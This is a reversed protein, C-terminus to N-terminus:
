QIGYKEMRQRFAIEGGELIKSVKEKIVPLDISGQDTEKIYGRKSTSSMVGIWEADGFVPINANHTAFLFQRETKSKRLETVIRDAIFSNDLNDEPQDLILPDKNELLLLHLLATCQQGTSLDDLIKYEENSPDNSVNLEINILDPIDLTELDMNQSETLSSLREKVFSTLSVKLSDLKKELISKKFEFLQFQDDDIFNLRTEGIKDIKLSTLFDKLTKLNGEKILSLKLYGKLKKNIKKLSKEKADWIDKKLIDLKGLYEDREKRFKKKSKHLQELKRREPKLEEIEKILRKYYAGIESGSKGSANPIKKISKELDREDKEILKKIEKVESTHKDFQKKYSLNLEDILKHSKLLLDNFTTQLVKFEKKSSNLENIDENDILSLENTSAQFEELHNYFLQFQNSSKTLFSKEKELMTVNKQIEDLGYKQFNKAEEEKKGLKKMNEDCDIIKDEIDLLKNKNIQLLKYLEEIKLRMENVEVPLFRRIIEPLRAKESALEYLENQGYIEINPLIDNPSFNSETSEDFVKPKEGFKRKITFIKQFSYSYVKLEIEAVTEGLNAKILRQHKQEIDSGKPNNTLAYRIFEIVTTKGTGRGGIIANLHNSFSVDLKELYGTNIKISIIKSYYDEKVQNNLKIRSEPDLFAMKFAEFTPKTMKILCSANSNKIDEPKAVDSSNIIAIKKERHYKTENNNLILKHNPGDGFKLDDLNQVTIQAAHLLPHKWIHNLKLKLIGNDDTVHAAYLFGNLEKVKELLQVASLKSPTTNENIDTVGLAGLYRDLESKTTTEPFLCVFPAKESTALEFGPFVIIENRSFLSRIKEVGEVNGHDAIGIVRINEKKCEKLLKNNYEDETLSQQIGRYKIYSYPNVQLACKWFKAITYKENM